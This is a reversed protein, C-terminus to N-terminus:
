GIPAAEDDEKGCRLSRFCPLNQPGVRNARPSNLDTNGALIGGRHDCKPASDASSANQVHEGALLQWPDTSCEAVAPTDTGVDLVAWDREPHMLNLFQEAYHSEPVHKSVAQGDQWPVPSTATSLSGAVGFRM